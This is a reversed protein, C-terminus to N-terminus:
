LRFVSDLLYTPTDSPRAPADDFPRLIREATPSIVSVSDVFRVLDLVPVFKSQTPTVSPSQRDGAQPDPSTCCTMTAPAHDCDDHTQLCCAMEPATTLMSDACAAVASWGLSVVLVLAIGMAVHRSRTMSRM